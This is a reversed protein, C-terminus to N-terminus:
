DEEAKRKNRKDAIKKIFAGLKAALTALLGRAKGVSQGGSAEGGSSHTPSSAAKAAKQAGRASELDNASSKAGKKKLKKLASGADDSSGKVEQAEAKKPDGGAKAVGEAEALKMHKKVAAKASKEDPHDNHTGTVVGKDDICGNKKQVQGSGRGASTFNAAWKADDASGMSRVLYSGWPASVTWWNGSSGGHKKWKVGETLFELREILERM